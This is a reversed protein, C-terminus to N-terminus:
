LPLSFQQDLGLYCDSMVYLAYDLRGAQDPSLVLSHKVSGRVGGVRKLAVLERTEPNGIVLLWVEDKPKPFKPSHVRLGEKGPRSRRTLSVTVTTQRDQQVTVLGPQRPQLREGNVQVSVELRPLREMM